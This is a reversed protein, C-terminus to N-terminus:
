IESQLAEAPDNPELRRPAGDWEVPSRSQALGECGSGESGELSDGRMGMGAPDQRLTAGREWVRSVAPGMARDTSSAASMYSAMRGSGLAEAQM